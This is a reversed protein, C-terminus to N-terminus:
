DENTDWCLHFGMLPGLVPIPLETSLWIGEGCALPAGTKAEERVSWMTKVILNGASVGPTKNGRTCPPLCAVFATPTTDFYM